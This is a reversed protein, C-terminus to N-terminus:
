IKYLTDPATTVIETTNKSVLENKAFVTVPFKVTVAIALGGEVVFKVFEHPVGVTFTVAGAYIKIV